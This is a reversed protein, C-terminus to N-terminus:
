RPPPTKPAVPKLGVAVHHLVFRSRPLEAALAAGSNVAPAVAVRVRASVTPAAVTCVAAFM